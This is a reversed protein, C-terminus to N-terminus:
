RDIRFVCLDWRLPFSKGTTSSSFAHVGAPVVFCDTALAALNFYWPAREWRPAVVTAQVRLGDDVMTELLGVLNPLQTFPPNCYNNEAAWSSRKVAFANVEEAFPDYFRSNYRRLQHANASAFRDVTHPGFQAQVQRWVWSQLVWEELDHFRSLGDAKNLDTAVREPLLSINHSDCLYFLQRLISMLDGVATSFSTSIHRTVENDIRARCVKNRLQERFARVANLLAQTELTSIHLDSQGPGWHGHAWLEGDPTDLCAGWALKSADTTLTVTPVPGVVARGNWKAPLAAWWKLDKVTQHHLRVKGYWSGPVSAIDNYLSRLYFRAPAVAPALSQAFGAFQAAQRKLVWRSRRSAESLLAKAVAKLRQLKDAPVRLEMRESDIILGLHTIELCVTWTSKAENIRLGYQLLWQRMRDSARQAARKTMGWYIFLWDDLYSRVRVRRDAVRRRLIRALESMTDNFIRPSLSWGFPLCTFQYAAGGLKFTFFRRDDPHIGIAYYGHELDCAAMWAGKRLDQHISRLDQYSCSKEEQDYVNIPREDVILRWKGTRQGARMKPIVFAAACHELSDAPELVGLELLEDRLTVWAAMEEPNLATEQVAFRPVQDRDPVRVGQAIAQLM